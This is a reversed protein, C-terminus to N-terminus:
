PRRFRGRARGRLVLYMEQHGLQSETHEEVIQGSGGPSYVNTGFAQIGFHRRVPRWVFGDPMEVANLEDIHALNM